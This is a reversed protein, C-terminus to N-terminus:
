SLVKRYQNVLPIFPFGARKKTKPPRKESFNLSGPRKRSGGPSWFIGMSEM